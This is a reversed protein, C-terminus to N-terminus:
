DCLLQLLLIQMDGKELEPFINSIIKKDYIDASITMFM